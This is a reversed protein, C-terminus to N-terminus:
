APRYRVPAAFRRALRSVRSLARCRCWGRPAGGRSRRVLAEMLLAVASDKGWSQQRCLAKAAGIGTDGGGAEIYRLALAHCGDLATRVRADNPHVKLAERKTRRKPATVPGFLTEILEDPELARERRREQASLIRIKDGNKSM